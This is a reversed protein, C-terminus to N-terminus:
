FFFFFFFFFLLFGHDRGTDLPLGLDPHHDKDKKEAEGGRGEGGSDCQKLGSGGLKRKQWLGSLVGKM